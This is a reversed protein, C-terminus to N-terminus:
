LRCPHSADDIPERVNNLIALFTSAIHEWRCSEIRTRAARGLRGYRAPHQCLEVAATIFASTDGCAVTVGHQGNDIWENAAAYDFAVIGLGSAMAEAVVNGYTESLSPFIFVEASAYHRALADHDIFGTFIAEPLRRQLSARLPGDGVLVTALDPQAEQMAQLTDVLLDLNKESALRGVYLAVPQHEGVGWQQRLTPDRKDPTFHHSDIGRGMVHVNDFGQTRLADAQTSTPVLTAQTRNHFRRLTAQVPVKLWRMGYDGAYHDFNTHFGSVVPIGLRRAVRLASFGLPGETAIYVANPRQSRWLRNIARGAPFGLQVDSYGPVRFGKVQLEVEAAEFTSGDKPRPRILQLQIGQRQLEQSLHGLTHAVGNIEPAWTESVLCIRM